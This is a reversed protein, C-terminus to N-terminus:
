RRKREEYAQKCSEIAAEESWGCGWNGFQDEAEWGISYPQWYTKIRQPEPEKRCPGLSLMLVLAFVIRMMHTGM